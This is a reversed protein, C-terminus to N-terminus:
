QKGGKLKVQERYWQAGIVFASTEYTTWGRFIESKHGAENYIEEDSIEVMENAEGIQDILATTNGIHYELITNIAETLIKPQTAKTFEDGMRWKQHSELILLAHRLSMKNVQKELWHKVEQWYGDSAYNGLTNLEEIIEDVTRISCQVSEDYDLSTVSLQYDVILQSAKEIPTM